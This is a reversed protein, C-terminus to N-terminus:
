TPHVVLYPCPEPLNELEKLDCGIEKLKNWASLRKSVGENQTEATLVFALCVQRKFPQHKFPEMNKM